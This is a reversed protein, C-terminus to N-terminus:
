WGSSWVQQRLECIEARLAAAECPAQLAGAAHAPPQGAACGQAGALHGHTTARELVSTACYRTSNGTGSSMCTSRAGSSAGGWDAIDLDPQSMNRQQEGTAPQAVDLLTDAHAHKPLQGAGHREGANSDRHAAGARVEAAPVAPPLGPACCASCSAPSSSSNSMCAAHPAAGFAADGVCGGRVGGMHATASGLEAAQVPSADAPGSCASCDATSLCRVAPKCPREAAAGALMHQPQWSLQWPPGRPPQQQEPTPAKRLPSRPRPM